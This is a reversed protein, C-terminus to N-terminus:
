AENGKVKVFCTLHVSLHDWFLSWFRRSCVKDFMVFAHYRYDIFRVFWTLMAHWFSFESLNDCYNGYQNESVSCNETGSSSSQQWCFVLLLVNKMMRLCKRNFFGRGLHSIAKRWRWNRSPPRSVCWGSQRPPGTEGQSAWVACGDSGRYVGKSKYRQHDRWWYVPM